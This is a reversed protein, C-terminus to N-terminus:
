DVLSGVKGSEQPEMGVILSNQLCFLEFFNLVFLAFLITVFDFHTTVEARMAHRHNERINRVVHLVLSSKRYKERGRYKYGENSTESLTFSQALNTGAECCTMRENM